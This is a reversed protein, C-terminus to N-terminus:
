NEYKERLEIYGELVSPIIQRKKNRGLFVSFIKDGNASFFQISHTDLNMFRKSVFYISDISDSKIHGNLPADSDLLNFYGQATSGKSLKGKIEAIIGTNRVIVTVSEWETMTEWIFEFQNGRTEISMSRPLYKIVDRETIGLDDAITSPITDPKEAITKAIRSIIEETIKVKKGERNKLTIMNYDILNQIIHVNYFEGACTMKVVGTCPDWKVMGADTWQELLPSLRSIITGDEYRTELNKLNVQRFEEFSGAIDGNFRAFPSVKSAVAIPKRGQDLMSYYESNKMKQYIRYGAFSGGAGNGVPICSHNYKPIFNYMSRERNTFAWHRLGLRKCNENQFFDRTILFLDAQETKTAPPSLKGKAVLSKIPSGPLNKLNYISVSDIGIANKVTRLDELWIEETQEPLGYILDVSIMAKNSSAIKKIRQLLIEKTDIRGMQQRIKTNFSQVGFSFRNVGNNICALVKEDTFGNIRGEITIECDNALQFNNNIYKLIKELDIVSLDTPTGGGFYVAHMPMSQGVVTNSVLHLEKLIYEAYKSIDKSNSRSQYFPCFKCRAICFPIHIYLARRESEESTNRIIEWASDTNVIEGSMGGPHIVDNDPFGAYMPNDGVGAFFDSLKRDKRPAGMGGKERIKNVYEVTIESVGDKQATKEVLKRIMPQVFSPAGKLLEGAESTWILQAHKM